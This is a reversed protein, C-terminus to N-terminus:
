VPGLRIIGRTGDAGKEGEANKEKSRGAQMSERWGTSPLMVDTGKVFTAQTTIVRARAWRKEREM